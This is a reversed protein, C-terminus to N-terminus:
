MCDFVGLESRHGHLAFAYVHGGSLRLATSGSTKRPSGGVFGVTLGARAPGLHINEECGVYVLRHLLREASATSMGIQVGRRESYRTSTTFFNGLKDTGNM